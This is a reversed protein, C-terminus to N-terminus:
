KIKLLNLISRLNDASNIEVRILDADRLEPYKKLGSHRGYIGNRNLESGPYFRVKMGSVSDKFRSEPIWIYQTISDHQHAFSAGNESQYGDMKANGKKQLPHKSVWPCATLRERVSVPNIPMEDPMSSHVNANISGEASALQVLAAKIRMENQIRLGTELIWKSSIGTMIGLQLAINVDIWNLLRYKMKENSLRLEKFHEFAEQREELIHLAVDDFTLKQLELRFKLFSHFSAVNSIEISPVHEISPAAFQIPQFKGKVILWRIAESTEIDGNSAFSLQDDGQQYASTRVSEESYGSVLALQRKTIYGEDIPIIDMLGEAHKHELALRATIAELVLKHDDRSTEDFGAYFYDPFKTEVFSSYILLSEWMEGAKWIGTNAFHFCETFVSMLLPEPGDDHSRHELFRDRSEMGVLLGIFEAVESDIFASIQEKLKTASLQTLTKM